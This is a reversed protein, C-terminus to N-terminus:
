FNAPFYLHQSLLSPSSDSEPTRRRVQVAEPRAGLATPLPEQGSTEPGGSRPEPEM